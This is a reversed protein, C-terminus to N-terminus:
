QRPEQHTSKTQPSKNMNDIRKSSSDGEQWAPSIGYHSEIERSWQQGSLQEPSENENFTPSGAFTQQDIQATLEQRNENAQVLEAPVPHMKNENGQIILYDVTNGDQSLHIDEVTGLVEGNKGILNKGMLQEAQSANIRAKSGSQGEKQNATVVNVDVQPEGQQQVDVKAQGQEQFNIKSDQNSKEINVDPESEQVAVKPEQQQVNVEPKEQKVVVNPKQQQVDVNPKPQKVTVEPKPQEVQVSVEPAPQRVTVQPEPQAVNVKPEKQSVQVQAKPQDVKVKTASEQIAIEGDKLQSDQQDQKAATAQSTDQRKTDSVTNEQQVTSTTGSTESGASYVMSNPDEGQKLAEWPIKNQEGGMGLFGGKEVIVAEIEGNPSILVKEITGVQQGQENHIQKGKLDEVQQAAMVPSNLSLTLILAAFISYVKKM